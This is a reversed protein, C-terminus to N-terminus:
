GRFNCKMYKNLLYLYRINKFMAYVRRKKEEFHMKNWLELTNPEQIIWMKYVPHALILFFKPALLNFLNEYGPVGNLLNLKAFPLCYPCTSAKTNGCVCRKAPWNISIRQVVAVTSICVLLSDPLSMFLKNWTKRKPVSNAVTLYV